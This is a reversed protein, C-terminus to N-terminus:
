SRPKVGSHTAKSLPIRAQGIQLPYAVILPDPESAELGIAQNIGVIGAVTDDTRNGNGFRTLHNMEFAITEDLHELSDGWVTITFVPCGVIQLHIFQRTQLVCLIGVRNFLVMAADLLKAPDLTTLQAARAGLARVDTQRQPSKQSDFGVTEM